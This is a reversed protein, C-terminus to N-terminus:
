GGKTTRKEVVVVIVTVTVVDKPNATHYQL